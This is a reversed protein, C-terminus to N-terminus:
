SSRQKKELLAELRSLQQNFSDTMGNSLDNKINKMTSQFTSGLAHLEHQHSNLTHRVASVANETSQMREGAQQFWTHFQANQGKVEKLGVELAQIRDEHPSTM